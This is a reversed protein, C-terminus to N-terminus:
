EDNNKAVYFFFDSEYINAEGTLNDNDIPIIADGLNSKYVARFLSMLTDNDDQKYVIKSTKKFNNLVKTFDFVPSKTLDIKNSYDIAKPKNNQIDQFRNLTLERKKSDFQSIVGHRFMVDKIFSAQNIQPIANTINYPTNAGVVSYDLSAFLVPFASSLQFFSEVRFFGMGSPTTNNINKVTIKVTDNAELNLINFLETNYRYKVFDNSALNLTQAISLTRVINPQAVGNITYEVNLQIQGYLSTTYNKSRRSMFGLTFRLENIRSSATFCKWEM